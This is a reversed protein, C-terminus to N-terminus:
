RFFFNGSSNRSGRQFLPHPHSSHWVTCHNRTEREFAQESSWDLEHQGKTELWQRWTGAPLQPNLWADAPNGGVMIHQAGDQLHFLWSFPTLCWKFRWIFWSNCIHWDEMHCQLHKSYLIWSSNFSPIKYIHIHTSVKAWGQKSLPVKM